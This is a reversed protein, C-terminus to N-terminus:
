KLLISSSLAINKHSIEPWAAKGSLNGSEGGLEAVDNRRGGSDGVGGGGPHAEDAPIVAAAIAVLLPALM